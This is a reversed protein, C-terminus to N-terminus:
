FEEDLAETTRKIDEFERQISLEDFAVFSMEWLCYYLIEEKSNKELTDSAILYSLWESWPNFELSYSMKDGTTYGSVDFNENQEKEDWHKEIYIYMEKEKKEIPESKKHKLHVYMKLYDDFADPEKERLLKAFKIENIDKLLDQLRYNKNTFIWKNLGEQYVEELEKTLSILQESILQKLDSDKKNVFEDFEEKGLSLVTHLISYNFAVHLIESEKFLRQNLEHYNLRSQQLLFLLKEKPLEQIRDPYYEKLLFLYKKRTKVNEQKRNEKMAVKWEDFNPILDKFLDDISTFKDKSMTVGRNM